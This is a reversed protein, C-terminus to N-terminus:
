DVFNFEDSNEEMFKEYVKDVLEQSDIGVYTDYESDLEEIVEFIHVLCEEENDTVPLLVAYDKGDLETFGLIEFQEKNGDEDTFEFIMPEEDPINKKDSM